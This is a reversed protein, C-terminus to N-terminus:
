AGSGTSETRAPLTVVFTSGRGPASDVTIDGGLLRALRRAVTLGLGSGGQKRTLAQEVQFFPAFIRDHQEPQIGIGTDRVSFTITDDDVRSRLEIVGADTFKIANEVLSLLIHEIKASDSVVPIPTDPAHFDFRLGKEGALSAGRAAVDRLLPALDFSEIRLTERGAEMRSFTLIEEIVRLQHRANSTIREVQERQQPNLPGSIGASLLDAYGIIANLPTRLEHSMVALFDSKARSAHRADAAAATAARFLRANDIALAARGALETAFRLDARSYRRGPRSSICTIAGLIRDRAILPVSLVSRPALQHLIQRHREDIAIDDLERPSIDSLLQPEGDALVRSAADLRSPRPPYRLLERVLPECEPIRHEGAVRRIRGNEVLDIFCYDAIEETALRAVTGLTEHYDLSSALAAGARDLFRLGDEYIKRETVDQAVEAYGALRGDPARIVTLNFRAWFCNGDKRLRWGEDQLRDSAAATRLYRAPLDRSRANEPFLVSYHKGLIEAAAWGTLREAGVNWSLICGDTDLACIAYDVINALIRRLLDCDTPLPHRDGLPGGTGPDHPETM